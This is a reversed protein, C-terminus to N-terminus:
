WFTSHVHMAGHMAGYETGYGACACCLCLLLWAPAVSGDAVWFEKRGRLVYFRQTETLYGKSRFGLMSAPSQGGAFGTATNTKHLAALATGHDGQDREM